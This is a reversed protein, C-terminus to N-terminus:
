RTRLRRIEFLGEWEPHNALLMRAYRSTYKDNVKFHKDTTTFRKNWRLEEVVAKVGIKRRGEDFLYQAGAELLVYVHPNERHHKEFALQYPGKKRLAM